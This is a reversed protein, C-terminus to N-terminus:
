NRQELAELRKELQKIRDRQAQVAELKKGSDDMGKRLQCLQFDVNDHFTRLYACIAKVTGPVKDKEFGPPSGPLITAM